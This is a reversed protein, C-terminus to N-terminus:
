NLRNERLSSSVLMLVVVGVSTTSFVFPPFQIADDFNDNELIFM